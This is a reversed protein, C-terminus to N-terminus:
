ESRKRICANDTKNRTLCKGKDPMYVHAYDGLCKGIEPRGDEGGGGTIVFGRVLWLGAILGAQECSAPRNGLNARQSRRPGEVQGGFRPGIQEPDGEGQGGIINRAADSAVQRGLFSLPWWGVGSRGVESGHGGVVKGPDEHAGGAAQWARPQVHLHSRHITRTPGDRGEPRVVYTPQGPSPQLIVVFPQPDWHPGLKGRARRCFNRILGAGGTICVDHQGWPQAAEPGAATEPSEGRWCTVRLEETLPPIWIPPTLTSSVGVCKFKIVLSSLVSPQLPQSM